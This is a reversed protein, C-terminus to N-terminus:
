VVFGLFNESNIVEWSANEYTELWLKPPKIKKTGYKFEFGFLKGEREEVLDIEKKDYTRWFYNNSYISQYAQKKLREMFLFNEWIMGQDNRMTLPNFNNIVANRIGNDYFYYRQSKNIEKRLNRSFGSVKKIIFTKELLDLYRAVTQKAIGLNNALESLSVEHGIQFAILRLLDILKSSNRVNDLSLIDKFLYSNRLTTLYKIKEEKNRASLVEPYTGYILYNELNKIIEFNGFQAAIELMSIPFLQFTFSRGTLPAGVANSLDFSSSGTAIVMMNPSHDILIKLGKGVNPIEQAEDIFVIDYNKFASLIRAESQSSLIQSLEIDDGSGNFIKSSKNSLLKQILSTKGVRRAGYFISVKGKKFLHPSNNQYYRSYWM